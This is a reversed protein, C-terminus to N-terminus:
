GHFSAASDEAVQKILLNGFSIGRLGEQPNTISNFIACTPPSPIWARSRPRAAAQV